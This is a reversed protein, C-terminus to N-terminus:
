KSIIGIIIYYLCTKWVSLMMCLMWFSGNCAIELAGLEFLDDNERYMKDEPCRWVHWKQKSDKGGCFM